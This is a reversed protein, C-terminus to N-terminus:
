VLLKRIIHNFKIAILQLYQRFDEILREIENTEVDKFAIIRVGAFAFYTLLIKFLLLVSHPLMRGVYINEGQILLKIANM